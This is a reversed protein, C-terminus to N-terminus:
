DDGLFHGCKPCKSKLEKKYPSETPLSVIEWELIHSEKGCKFCPIMETRKVEKEVGTIGNLSYIFSVTKLKGNLWDNVIKQRMENIPEM